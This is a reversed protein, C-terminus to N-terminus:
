FGISGPPFSGFPDCTFALVAGFFTPDAFFGSPRYAPPLCPLTIKNTLSPDLAVPFNQSSLSHAM